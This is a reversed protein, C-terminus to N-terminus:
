PKPELKGKDKQSEAQEPMAYMGALLERIQKLEIVVDDLTAAM